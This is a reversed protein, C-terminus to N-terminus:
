SYAMRLDLTGRKGIADYHSDLWQRAAARGFGHLQSILSWSADLKTAASFPELLRGGDIRHVFPRMYNDRSLVGSDVLRDVFDIARMESMLAGNFTIENLRNQIDRASRPTEDREIPNVQIIVIDPCATKYFLPFLAPNGMYGGDWYPVDDIVVAQFLNPLCASAMVHDVTLEHGEFVRIKGNQVNTAAVFLKLETLARVKEFDIMKALHDRLPNINLPNFEYPSAYHTVLDAWWTAFQAQLPWGLFYAHLFKREIPSLAGEDSISRWFRALSKRAGQRGDTLYGEALVVANMAGASTGTIAEFDLREDELLFDLVGWTFAGHSGGGQLALNVKKQGGWDIEGKGSAM